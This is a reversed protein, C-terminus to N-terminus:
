SSGARLEPSEMPLQVFSAVPDLSKVLTGHCIAYMLERYSILLQWDQPLPPCQPVLVSLLGKWSQCGAIIRAVKCSWDYGLQRFYRDLLLCLEARQIQPSWVKCIYNVSSVSFVQLVHISKKGSLLMVESGEMHSVWFGLHM